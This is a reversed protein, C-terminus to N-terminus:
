EGFNFLNYGNEVSRGFLFSLVMERFSLAFVYVNLSFMRFNIIKNNSKLWWVDLNVFCLIVVVTIIKIVIFLWGVM